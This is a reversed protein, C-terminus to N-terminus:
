FQELTNTEPNWMATPRGGFSNSWGTAGPLHYVTLNKPCNPSFIDGGFSPANGKFYVSTLSICDAFAFDGVNTISVPITICALRHEQPNMCEEFAFYGIRTVPLGQFTDPINVVSNSYERGHGPGSVTLAVGNTEFCLDYYKPETGALRPQSQTTPHCGTIASAALTGALLGLCLCMFKPKKM